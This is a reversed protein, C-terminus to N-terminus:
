QYRYKIIVIGSGGYGTSSAQWESGGGGSGTNASASSGVSTGHGAVGTGASAGGGYGYYGEGGGGGGGCYSVANPFSASRTSGGNSSSGESSAGGGGGGRNVSGNAGHNGQGSTGNGRSGNRNGGGGSGGNQGPMNPGGWGGGGGGGSTSIIGSVSSTGGNGGAYGHGIAGSGGGGVSVSYNQASVTHGNSELMGGAGGGGSDHGRGAAAGGSICLVDITNSGLSNGGDSVSFTGSGTFKHYKYSGSTSITGGTATVYSICQNTNCSQSESASGSCAAGGYQASPNTCTRTRSQTGGGCSVSCSGYSSWGSWDGNIPAKTIASSYNQDATDGDTDTARITFTYNITATNGSVQTATGTLAGTSTNLSVGTPLTGSQLAYSSEVAGTTYTFNGSTAYSYSALEVTSSITATGGTSTVVVNNITWSYVQDVTDGDTDTGRITFSYTTNSSVGSPTGSIVGSATNLSLGGPLAGSQISYASFTSGTSFTFDTDVDYSASSGETKANITVTGGTATPLVHNISWSYSQDVTDGDTDTARITFTYATNSSVNGMTGSIVGTSTNLSLGVPLAGSQISYASFLAGTAYSFDTDVDYSAAQTEIVSSITVTGGTATPIVHNISWSYVQDVTDGDTDTARITFTYATNSAVNGMTGSIVGSTTNLSLGSPLSGSQLAYTSFIAGSAYSFDTDVDYSAAQTEIVSSITVTGGTTTPVATYITQQYNQTSSGGSTDTATISWTYTTASSVNGITGTLSTNGATPLTCGSPMTGSALTYTLALDADVDDTFDAGLNYSFSGAETAAGVTITGGTTTPANDAVLTWSSGDSVYFLDSTSNYFLAGKSGVAPASAAVTVSNIGTLSAGDIAPLAGTISSAAIGLGEIDSKTQDATASAEIANLKSHDADTFTNSDTAAEVAAKIEANTQDATASAEIANLKSHDADTFTNSDTAAEVAAKIEANTQDATASAEIANLKSSNLETDTVANEAIKDATVADDAIESTGVGGTSISVGDDNFDDDNDFIHSARTLSAYGHLAAFALWKTIAPNFDAHDPDLTTDPAPDHMEAKFTDKLATENAFARGGGILVDFMKKPTKGKTRKRFSPKGGKISVKHDDGVWLSDSSVYLDRIKKESSGIDYAADTDPIIAGKMTGSTFEIDGVVLNIGTAIETATITNAAIDAAVITNAAIKDTTVADDLIDATEVSGTSVAVPQSSGIYGAM